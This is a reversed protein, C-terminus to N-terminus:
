SGSCINYIFVKYIILSLFEVAKCTVIMCLTFYLSDSIDWVWKYSKGSCVCSRNSEYIKLKLLFWLSNKTKYLFFVSLFKSESASISSWCFWNPTHTQTQKHTDPWATYITGLGVRPDLHHQSVTSWCFRWLRWSGLAHAGCWCWDPQFERAHVCVHFVM